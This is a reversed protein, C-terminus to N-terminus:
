YIQCFKPQLDQPLVWRDEVNVFDEPSSKLETQRVDPQLDQPLNWGDEVNVFNVRNTQCRTNAWQAFHHCSHCYSSHYCHRYCWQWILFQWHQYNGINTIVFPQHFQILCKQCNWVKGSSSKCNPIDQSSDDKREECARHRSCKKHSRHCTVALLVEFLSEAGLLVVVSQRNIVKVNITM